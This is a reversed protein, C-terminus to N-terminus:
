LRWGRRYRRRLYKEAEPTGPLKMHRADWSLRQGSRYAVNGLLVAETLPGAYSFDCLAPTRTKCGEIWEAHHGISDPISPTPPVWDQFKEKPLLVHRGYDALLMGDSGVFLTGNGWEPLLGEEFYHPRRGSYWTLNVPPLEGRAPFTYRVILWAPCSEPHVPPGEAEITEPVRLDLAWFPLDMHHCAMDGLLGNGFDWWGRWQFPAYAPHYPREPAPGLWLDWHLGPPVPPQDTPRDGPSYSGGCWVHVERISGIAGSRIAEVVRRYNSEAHIQTGMQTIRKRRRALDTLRRVEVVNHALPKECYVDLDAQMAMSAAPAHTHDPTSIVVADLKSKDIMRRFDTFRAAEPFDQACRDLYSEDVDCISTIQESAVGDLNARGRNAVGIIGISLRENAQYTRATAPSVGVLLGAGAIAAQGVFERRSTRSM